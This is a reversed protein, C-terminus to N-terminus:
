HVGVDLYIELSELRLPMAQQHEIKWARRKFQGLRYLYTRTFLDMGRPTNFSKYDNDSYSLFILNSSDYRDGILDIRNCYKWLMTEGDYNSTQLMCYIDHSNDSYYNPDFEYVVGDTLGLIYPYQPSITAKRCNFVSNNTSFEVWMKQTFDYVITHSSLNVVYLLHGKSRIMNGIFKSVDPEDDLIREIPQTSIPTPKLGDIAVVYRNGASSQAVFCLIGEAQAISDKNTGGGQYVAQDTRALPSGLSNGANYFFETSFAGIAVLQNTQRALGVIADPYMEASIFSSSRWQDPLELESNYIEKDTALFIYGDMFIPMPIHPTPFVTKLQATFTVTGNVVTAGETTPWTPQTAGSTGATTVKYWYGNDVTPAVLQGLTYATSATWTVHEGVLAVTDTTSIIWGSIGDCMFLFYDTAKGITFGVTGTTTPLTFIETNNKYLKNNIVYYINDNWTIAGRSEGAPHTWKPKLGPRKLVFVKSAGTTQNFITEPLMNIYRQDKILQGDRATPVGVLPLRVAESGM